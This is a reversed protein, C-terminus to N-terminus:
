KVRRAWELVATICDPDGAEAMCQCCDGGCDKDPARGTNMVKKCINCKLISAKRVWADGSQELFQKREPDPAYCEEAPNVSGCHTCCYNAHGARGGICTRFDGYVDALHLIDNQRSRFKRIQNKPIPSKV